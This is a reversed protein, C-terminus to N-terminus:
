CRPGRRGSTVRGVNLSDALLLHQHHVLLGLVHLFRQGLDKVANDLDLLLVFLQIGFVLEKLVVNAVEHGSGHLRTTDVPLDRYLAALVTEVVCM